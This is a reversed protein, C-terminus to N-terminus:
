RVYGYITQLKHQRKNGKVCETYIPNFKEGGLRVPILLVVGRFKNSEDGQGNAQNSSALSGNSKKRQKNLQQQHNDVSIGSDATANSASSSCHGLSPLGDYLNCTSAAKASSFVSRGRFRDARGNGGNGYGSFGYNSSGGGLTNSNQKADAILEQRLQEEIVEFASGNSTLSSNRSRDRRVSSEETCLKYVDELYVTCDQAVYCAINELLPNDLFGDSLAQALVHSVTAPGYWDGPKKGMIAGIKVLRHIGFPADPDDLFWKVIM